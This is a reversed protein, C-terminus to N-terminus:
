IKPGSRMAVTRDPAAGRLWLDNWFENLNPLVTQEFAPDTYINEKGIIEEAFPLFERRRLGQHVPTSNYTYYRAIQGEKSLNWNVFIRAAALNSAGRLIVYEGITVPVSDPCHYGVPAGKSAERAAHAQMTAIVAHFEGAGVLQPLTNVGEKRLQPRVEFFLRKLFGKV